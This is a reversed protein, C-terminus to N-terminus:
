RCDRSLLNEISSQGFRRNRNGSKKKRRWLSGGDNVAPELVKVNHSVDLRHEEIVQLEDPTIVHRNTRRLNNPNSETIGFSVVSVIM